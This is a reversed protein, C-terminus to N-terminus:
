LCVVAIEAGRKLVKCLINIRDFGIVLEVILLLHHLQRCQFLARIESVYLTVAGDDSIIHVAAVFIYRIAHEVQEVVVLCGRTHYLAFCVVFSEACGLIQCLLIHVRDRKDSFTLFCGVRNVKERFRVDLRESVAYEFGFVVIKVFCSLYQVSVVGCFHECRCGCACIVEPLVVGAFEDELSALRDVLNASTKFICLEVM